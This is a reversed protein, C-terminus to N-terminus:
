LINLMQKISIYNFKRQTVRFDRDLFISSPFTPNKSDQMLLRFLPHYQGIKKETQSNTYLVGDFYISDLSEADMEVAYYHENLKQIVKPDKFTERQMKKCYSCWETHFFLFVPKPNRELSDSLQEFPIWNIDEKNLPQAKIELSILGIFLIGIQLLKM